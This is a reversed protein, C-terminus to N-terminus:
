ILEYGEEKESKQEKQETSTPAAEPSSDKTATDTEEPKADVKVAEAFTSPHAETDALTAADNNAKEQAVEPEITPAAVDEVHVPHDETHDVASGTAWSSSEDDTHSPSSEDGQERRDRVQRWYEDRKQELRELEGEVQKVVEKRKRRVERDGNSAVGDAQLLLQLLKNNQAHYPKNQKNFLLSPVTEAPANHSFSLASPFTFTDTALKVESAISDLKALSDSSVKKEDVVPEAAPAPVPAPAPASTPEVVQTKKEGEAVGKGKGEDKKVEEKQAQQEHKFAQEVNGLIDRVFPPLNNPGSLFESLDFPQRPQSSEAPAADSKSGSKKQESPGAEPETPKSTAAPATADPVFELGFQGLLENLGQPVKDSVALGLKSEPEVRLGLFNALLDNIAEPFEPKNDAAPESKKEPQSTAVPEAAPLVPEAPDAVSTAVPEDKKEEKKAPTTAEPQKEDAAAEDDVAVGFISALLRSFEDLGGDQSDSRAQRRAACQRACQQRRESIANKAAIARERQQEAHAFAAIAQQRRHAEAQRAQIAEIERVRRAIAVKREHEAAIAVRREREREARVAAAAALQQERHAQLQAVIREREAEERVIREAEKRRQISRLHAIAAREEDELSRDSHNYGYAFDAPPPSATYFNYQPAPAPAATAFPYGAHGSTFPVPQAHAAPRRQQQQYPHLGFYSMTSSSPNASALTGNHHSAPQTLYLQNIFIPIHTTM